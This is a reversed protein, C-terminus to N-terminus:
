CIVPPARSPATLPASAIWVAPIAGIWQTGLSPLFLEPIDTGFADNSHVLHCAICDLDLNSPGLDHDHLPSGFLAILSFCVTLALVTRNSREKNLKSLSFFTM